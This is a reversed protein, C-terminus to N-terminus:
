VSGDANRYKDFEIQNLQNILGFLRIDDHIM